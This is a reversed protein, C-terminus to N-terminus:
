MQSEHAVYLGHFAHPVVHPTVARFIETMTKADLVVLASAQRAADVVVTLIVGDDEHRGEPDAVFTPEGVCSRPASWSKSRGTALDLKVLANALIGDHEPDHSVGYAYRYPRGISREAITPLELRRESIVASTATGEQKSQSNEAARAGNMSYRVPRVPTFWDANQERLNKLYFQELIDARDYRCVDIHINDDIDEFANVFHFAAFAETEYEAVVRGHARSIIYFMSKKSEDFRLAPALACDVVLSKLDVDWPSMAFIVFRETLALSHIHCNPNANIEALIDTAGDPKVRFVRYRGPNRWDGAAFNFIEGTEEDVASHAAAAMGKLRPNLQSFDFSRTTALTEPDLVVNHAFDSRAVLDAHGPIKELSVNINMPIRGTEPDKSLPLLLRKLFNLPGPPTSNSTAGFSLEKYKDKPTAEIARVAEPCITRCMFNVQNSDADIGFKFVVGIGDFWHSKDAQQGDAHTIDFIGPGVRYMNGTLYSPLKGSVQLPIETDVQDVSVFGQAYDSASSDNTNNKPSAPNLIPCTPRSFKTRSPPAM